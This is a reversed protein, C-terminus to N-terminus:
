RPAGGFQRAAGVTPRLDGCADLVRDRLHHGVPAPVFVQYETPTAVVKAAVGAVAGQYVTGDRRAIPIVTLRAM